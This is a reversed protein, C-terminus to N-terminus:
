VERGRWAPSGAAALRRAGREGHARQRNNKRAGSSVEPVSGDGGRLGQVLLVQLRQEAPALRAAAGVAEAAGVKRVAGESDIRVPPAVVRRLRLGLLLGVLLGVQLLLLPSPAPARGAARRATAAVGTAWRAAAPRAAAAPVLRHLNLQLPRTAGCLRLHGAARGSRPAAPAHIESAQANEDTGQLGSCHLALASTRPLCVLSPLFCIAVPPPLLHLCPPLCGFGSCFCPSCAQPHPLM